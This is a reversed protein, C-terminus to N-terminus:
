HRGPGDLRQAGLLREEAVDLFALARGLVAVEHLVREDVARRSILAAGERARERGLDGERRAGVREGVRLVDAELQGLVERLAGLRELVLLRALAPLAGLLRPRSRASRGRLSAARRLASRGPAIAGLSPPASPGCSRAWRRRGRRGACRWAS